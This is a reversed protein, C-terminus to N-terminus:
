VGKLYRKAYVIFAAICMGTILGIAGTLLFPKKIEHIVPNDGQITFTPSHTDYTNLRAGKAEIISVASESLKQISERSPYSFAVVVNQSSYKKARFLSTLSRLSFSEPDISAKNFIELIISPTICWSMLTDGVLDAAKIAYYNDYQYETTEPRNSLLIHFAMSSNYKKPQCWVAVFSIISVLIGISLIYIKNKLLFLIHDRLEM